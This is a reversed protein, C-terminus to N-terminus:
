EGFPVCPALVGGMSVPSSLIRFVVSWMPGWVCPKKSSNLAMTMPCFAKKPFAVIQLDIWPAIESRVELMAKLATLTPDSVDVHTRM